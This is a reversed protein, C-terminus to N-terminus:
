PASEVMTTEYANGRITASAALFRPPFHSRAASFTAPLCNSQSGPRPSHSGPYESDRDAASATRIQANSLLRSTHPHGCSQRRRGDHATRCFARLRDDVFDSLRRVSRSGERTRESRAGAGRFFCRLPSWSRDSHDIRSDSRADSECLGDGTVALRDLGALTQAATISDDARHGRGTSLVRDQGVAEDRSIREGVGHHLTSRPWTGGSKVKKAVRQM